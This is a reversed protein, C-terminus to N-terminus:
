KLNNLIQNKIQEMGKASPHGGVMDIDVLATYSVGYHECIELFGNKLKPGFISNIIIHVKDKGVAEILESIFFSIGPLIIKKDEDTWNEFIPKGRDNSTWADNTGGFVFVRDVKNQEFFGNNILRELRFIFSNTKSCDGDYGTNCITSGSWSDNLVLESDTEKLLRHWWTQELTLDLGEAEKPYYASYGEPIWDKYTSYSDGFILIKENKM